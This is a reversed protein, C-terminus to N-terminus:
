TRIGGEGVEDGVGVVTGGGGSEARLNGSRCSLSSGTLIKHIFIKEINKLRIASSAVFVYNKWFLKGIRKININLSTVFNELSKLSSFQVYKSSILTVDETLVSLVQYFLKM